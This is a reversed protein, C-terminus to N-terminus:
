VLRASSGLCAFFLLKNGPHLRYARRVIRFLMLVLLFLGVTPLLTGRRPLIIVRLSVQHVIRRKPQDTLPSTGFRLLNIM